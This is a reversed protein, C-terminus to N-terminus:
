NIQFLTLQEIEIRQMKFKKVQVEKGQFLDKQQLEKIFFKLYDSKAQIQLKLRIKEITDKKFCSSKGVRVELKKGSDKIYPIGVIRLKFAKYKSDFYLIASVIYFNPILNKLKKIQNEFLTIVEKKNKLLDFNFTNIKIVIGTALSMKKSENVKCYYDKIKIKSNQNYKDIAEQFLEKYALQIDELINKSGVLVRYNCNFEEPYLKMIEEESKLSYKRTGIYLSFKM